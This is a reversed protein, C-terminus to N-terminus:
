AYISVILSLAHLKWGGNDGHSSDIDEGTVMRYQRWGGSDKDEMREM